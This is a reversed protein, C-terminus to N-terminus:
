SPSYYPMGRSKSAAIFERAKVLLDISKQVDEVSKFLNASSAVKQQEKILAEM